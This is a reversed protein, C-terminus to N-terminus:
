KDLGNIERNLEFERSTIYAELSRLRRELERFRHRLDRATPGPETRVRRWFTEAATSEYIQGPKRPLLASAIGYAFLTPLTFLMLGFVAGIRVAWRQVGFYDAIGACVGFLMGHRTDRYLRTYVKTM